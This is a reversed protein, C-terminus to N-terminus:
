GVLFLQMFDHLINHFLIYMCRHLFQCVSGADSSLKETAETLGRSGGAHGAGGGGARGAAPQDPRQEEEERHGRHRGHRHQRPRVGDPLPVRVGHLGVHVCRHGACPM